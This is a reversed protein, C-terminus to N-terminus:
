VLFPRLMAHLEGDHEIFIVNGGKEREIKDIMQKFTMGKMDSYTYGLDKLLMKQSLEPLKDVLRFTSNRNLSKIGKLLADQLFGTLKTNLLENSEIYKKWDADKTFYYQKLKHYASEPLKIAVHLTIDM